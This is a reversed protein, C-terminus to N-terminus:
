DGLEARRALVSRTFFSKLSPWVEEVTGQGVFFASGVPTTTTWEEANENGLNFRPIPELLGDAGSAVWAEFVEMLADYRGETPDDRPEDPGLRPRFERAAVSSKPPRKLSKRADRAARRRDARNM